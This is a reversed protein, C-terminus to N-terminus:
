NGDETIVDDFLGEAVLYAELEKHFLRIVSGGQFVCLDGDTSRTMFVPLTQQPENQFLHCIKFSMAMKYYIVYKSLCVWKTIFSMNQFVYGNQLLHGIKFSTGM